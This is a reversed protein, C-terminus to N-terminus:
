EQFLDHTPWATVAKIAAPIERRARGLPTQEGPINEHGSNFLVVWDVGTPLHEIYASVGPKGGNKAYNWGEATKIVRDWGLGFHSGNPRPPIPPPPSALMASYTQPALFPTGRSGDLATLFRAMDPASAVWNVGFRPHLVRQGGPAYRRVEDLGYGGEPRELRMRTIGMPALIHERVYTEYPQGSGREVVLRLVIFGFNSYHAETGPTFDLPRSLAIRHRLEPYEEGRHPRRLGALRELERVSPARAGPAPNRENWGGAHYLIQRITIAGFRPDFVTQGPLPTLDSLANVLYDDLRVKGQESLKLIAVATIPKTVSGLSFLSQRRVPEGAEVNAFGYGKALVLRGHKAIALSAGAVRQERLIDTMIGYFRELTTSQARASRPAITIALAPSWLALLAATVRVGWRRM